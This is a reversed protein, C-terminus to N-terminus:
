GSTVAAINSGSKSLTHFPSPIGLSQLLLPTSIKPKRLKFSRDKPKPTKGLKRTEELKTKPKRNKNVIIVTKPIKRDLCKVTKKTKGLFNCAATASFSYNLIGRRDTAPIANRESAGNVHFLLLPSVTRNYFLTTHNYFATTM